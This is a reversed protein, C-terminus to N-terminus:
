PTHQHLLLGRKNQAKSYTKAKELEQGIKKELLSRRKVLLEETQLDHRWPVSFPFEGWALYM